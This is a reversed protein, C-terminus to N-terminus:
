LPEPHAECTDTPDAVLLLQKTDAADCTLGGPSDLVLWSKALDLVMRKTTDDSGYRSELYRLLSETEADEVKCTFQIAM